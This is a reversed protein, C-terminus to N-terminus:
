QVAQCYDCRPGTVARYCKWCLGNLSRDVIFGLVASVSFFATAGAALIWGIRPGWSLTGASGAFSLGAGSPFEVAAVVIAVGAALAATVELYTPWGHSRSQPKFRKVLAVVGAVLSVAWLGSTALAAIGYSGYEPHEAAFDWSASSVSRRFVAGPFVFLEWEEVAWPGFETGQSSINPVISTDRTTGWWSLAAAIAFLIIAVALAGAERSDWGTPKGGQARTGFGM